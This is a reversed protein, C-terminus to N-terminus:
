VNHHWEMIYQDFYHGGFQVQDKLHGVKKFGLMEYLRIASEQTVTVYLYLKRINSQSTLDQVHQVLKKGMGQNRHMPDVWFSIVHARHMAIPGSDHILGIMGVVVDDIVAFWLHGIFDRWQQESRALEQEHTVGFAHPDEKTAALRIDRCKHWSDPSFQIIQLSM